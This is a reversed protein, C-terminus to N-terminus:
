QKHQYFMKLHLLQFNYLMDLLYNNHLLNEFEIHLLYKDIMLQDFNTYITYQLFNNHQLIMLDFQMYHYYMNLNQLLCNYKMDQQIMMHLHYEFMTHLLYMDVM